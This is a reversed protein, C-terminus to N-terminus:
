RIFPVMWSKALIRRCRASPRPIRGAARWRLTPSLVIRRHRSRKRVVPHAPMSCSAGPRPRFGTMVASRLASITLIVVWSFGGHILFVLDLSEVSALGPKRQFLAPAAGHRVVVLAM